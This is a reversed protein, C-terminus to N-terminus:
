QGFCKPRSPDLTGLHDLKKFSYVHPFYHCSVRKKAFSTKKLISNLLGIIGCLIKSYINAHDQINSLLGTVPVSSRPETM